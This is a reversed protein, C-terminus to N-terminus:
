RVNREPNTHPGADARPAAGYALVAAIEARDRRIPIVTPTLRGAVLLRIDISDALDTPALRADLDRDPLHSNM